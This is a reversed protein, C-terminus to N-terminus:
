RQIVLKGNAVKGAKEVQLLYVGDSLSPVNLSLVEQTYNTRSEYLIKGQVDTIKVAVEGEEEGKLDIQFDGQNPNPYINFSLGLEETDINSLISILINKTTIASCTGNSATLKVTFTGTSQYTYTPNAVLSTGQSDGFDWQWAVSGPSCNQAFSVPVNLTGTPPATIGASFNGASSIMITDSLTCGLNDQVAVWYIGPQNVTLTPNASQDSWLYLNGPVGGVLNISQGNCLNQNPGLNVSLSSLTLNISDKRSCNQASTVTLIYLGPTTATIAQTTAQTSWLYTYGAGLAPSNQLSIPQGGCLVQDPGLSVQFPTAPQIVVTDSAYCDYQNTVVVWYTNPTNSTITQSQNSTSWIYSNGAGPNGADLTFVGCEPRDPGLNVLPALVVTVTVTDTAICGTPTEAKVWYTAPSSVYVSQTYSGSSWTYTTGPSGAGANLLISTGFCLLTDNGLDADPVIDVSVFVTDSYSCGANDYVVVWYDGTTTPAITQTNASTSWSYNKGPNQANLVVSSDPCVNIDPGLYVFTNSVTAFITDRVIVGFNNTIQLFVNGQGSVTTSPSANLPANSWSYTAGSLIPAQIVAPIGNCINVNPIPTITFKEGIFVDDVAIGDANVSGNSAFAIRFMVNPQGALSLPLVRQVTIWTTTGSSGVLGTWGLQQGGPAANITNDNYWNYFDNLGGITTWTSGGSTSYQLVSGDMSFQSNWWLKMKIQPNVLTTFDFCPSLLYSQENNNYKTANSLGGTVWANNGSFAGQIVTKAPTGFAWTSLTGGSTWGAQGNTEFDEFYPFTNVCPQALLNTGGFMLMWSFLYTIYKM